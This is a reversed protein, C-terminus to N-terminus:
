QSAAPGQYRQGGLYPWGNAVCGQLGYTQQQM